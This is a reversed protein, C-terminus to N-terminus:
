SGMVAKFTLAVLAYLAFVALHGGILGLTFLVVNRTTFRRPRAGSPTASTAGAGRGLRMTM